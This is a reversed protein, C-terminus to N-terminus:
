QCWPKRREGHYPRAHGERIMIAAVDVGGVRLHACERGYRCDRGTRELVAGAGILEQLRRSAAVGAEYEGICRAHFTEPADFGLLRYSKGDLRVTDGDVAVIGWLSAFLPLLTRTGTSFRM